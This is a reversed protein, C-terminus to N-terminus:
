LERSQMTTACLEATHLEIWYALLWRQIARASVTRMHTSRALKVMRGIWDEDAFGWYAGPNMGTEM